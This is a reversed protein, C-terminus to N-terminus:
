RLKHRGDSGAARVIDGAPPAGGAGAVPREHRHHLQPEHCCKGVSQGACLCVCVRSFMCVIGTLFSRCISQSAWEEEEYEMDPQGLDQETLSTPGNQNAMAHDCPLGNSHTHSGGSRQRHIDLLAKNILEDKLAHVFLETQSHSFCFMFDHKLYVVEKTEEVEDRRVQQTLSELVEQLRAANLELSVALLEEALGFVLPQLQAM